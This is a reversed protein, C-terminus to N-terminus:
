PNEGKDSLWYLNRVKLLREVYFDSFHEQVFAIERWEARGRYILASCIM